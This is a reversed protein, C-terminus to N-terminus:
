DASSMPVPTSISQREGDIGDAVANEGIGRLAAILTDITPNDVGDPKRLWSALCETFRSHAEKHDKKIEELTNHPLNLHQSLRNYSGKSYNHRELLAIVKNLDKIDLTILVTMLNTFDNRSESLTRGSLIGLSIDEPTAMAM